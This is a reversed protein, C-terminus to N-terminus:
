SIKLIRYGVKNGNPLELKFEEGKKKGLFARGIPSENSIKGQLPDAESSGVIEFKMNKGKTEVEVTSGVEVVGSGLKKNRDIVKATRIINELHIIRSENERQQRKAETYEANESLDGQEKAEKIARAIEKRTTVKREHLEKKMKKLGEKTIYSVM